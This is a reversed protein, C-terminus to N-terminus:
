PVFLAKIFGAERAAFREYTRPGASLSVAPHTVVSASPVSVDGRVILPLLRRLVSRVPARGFSVHVNRDYAQVPSFGFRDATQVAIVSLRGGPRLLRFALEQGAVTGAADIAAAAGDGRPRLVALAEEASHPAAVVAGLARARHRRDAVPDVGVVVEAGMAFAAVVACLGVSGLGVVVVTDGGVIEAGEAAYWGTPFNDTLLVADDDSMGDPLPLVTGDAWPVRLLEAQGGHLLPGGPRSLPVAGFVGAHRCRSTLGRRCSACRGCSSSFPVIVRDGVAARTVDDGAAVVEGVAEHGTVVGFRVAERGEYPHLDSGCLGARRVAVVVDTSQQVTPDPLDTRYSVRRVDELVLGRM